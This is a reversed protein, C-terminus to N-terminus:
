KKDATGAGSHCLEAYWQCYTFWTPTSQRVLEYTFFTDQIFWIPPVRGYQNRSRYIFHQWTVPIYKIRYLCQLPYSAMSSCNYTTHNRNSFFISCGQLYVLYWTFLVDRSVLLVLCPIYTTRRVLKTRWQIMCQLLVTIGPVLYYRACVYKVLLYCTSCCAVYIRTHERCCQTGPKYQQGCIIKLLCYIAGNDILLM